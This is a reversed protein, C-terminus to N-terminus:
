RDWHASAPIEKAEGCSQNAVKWRPLGFKKTLPSENEAGTALEGTFKRLERVESLGYAHLRILGCDNPSDPLYELKM